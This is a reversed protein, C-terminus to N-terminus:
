PGRFRKWELGGGMPAAKENQPSRVMDSMRVWVSAPTIVMVKLRRSLFFEMVEVMYAAM